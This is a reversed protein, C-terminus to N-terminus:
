EAQASEQFYERIGAYIGYSIIDSMKMVLSLRTSQLVFYEMYGGINVLGTLHM